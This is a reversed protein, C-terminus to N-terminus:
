IGVGLLALSRPVVVGGGTIYAYDRGNGSNYLDTKETSNFVYKSFMLGDILGNMFGGGTFERGVQFPNTNDNVGGSYAATDATGNNIQIGLQNNVSDHWAVIFYWTATSPSGFTNATVSTFTGNSVFFEFRDSATKYRLVYEGAADAGGSTYKYVIPRNAGKSNLLVWCCISFDIDGTSLAANDSISFYEQNAAVFDRAGSIKGIATGVTNNDSLTNSGHSDLANGAGEDMAWYSILNTSLAM